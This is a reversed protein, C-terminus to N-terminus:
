IVAHSQPRQWEGPPDTHCSPIERHSDIAGYNRHRAGPGAERRCLKRQERGKGTHRGAGSFSICGDILCYEIQNILTWVSYFFWVRIWEIVM